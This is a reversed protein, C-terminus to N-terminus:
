GRNKKRRMYWFCGCGYVGLFVGNWYTMHDSLRAGLYVVGTLLLTFTVDFVLDWQEQKLKM